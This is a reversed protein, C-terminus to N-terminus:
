HNPRPQGSRSQSPEAPRGGPVYLASIGRYRGLRFAWGLIQAASESEANPGIRALCTDYIAQHYRRTQQSRITGGRALRRALELTKPWDRGVRLHAVLKGVENLDIGASVWAEALAQAAAREQPTAQRSM